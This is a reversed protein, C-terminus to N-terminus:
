PVDRRGDEDRRTHVGHLSMLRGESASGDVDHSCSAYVVASAESCVKRPTSGTDPYTLLIAM